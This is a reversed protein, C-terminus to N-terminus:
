PHPIGWLRVTGDRSASALLTGDPSFNLQTIEDSHGTLELIVKLSQADVLIIGGEETGVALLHGDPSYTVQSGHIEGNKDVRVLTSLDWIDLSGGNIAAFFRSDPSISVGLGYTDQLIQAKQTKTNYLLITEYGTGIFWNGDPSMSIHKIQGWYLDNTPDEQITNELVVGKGVQWTRLTCDDSATVLTKGDPSFSLSNIWDLHGSQSNLLKGDNLSLANVTWNRTGFALYKGDPSFTLSSTEAQIDTARKGDPINWIRLTNDSAGAALYSRNGSFSPSIAVSNYEAVHGTISGMTQLNEQNYVEVLGTNYLVAMSKQHPNFSFQDIFTDTRGRKNKEPTSSLLKGDSVRRIQIAGNSANVVLLRNDPSLNYMAPNEGGGDVFFHCTDAIHFGHSLYIDNNIKFSQYPQSDKMNWFHVTINDSTSATIMLKEDSSIILTNIHGDNDDQLKWTAQMSGDALSYKTIAGDAIYISKGDNSYCFAYAYASISTQFLISGDAIKLVYIYV